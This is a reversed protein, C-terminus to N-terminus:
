ASLLHVADGHLAALGKDLTPFRGALHAGDYALRILEAVAESM